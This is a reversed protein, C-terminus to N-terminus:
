RASGAGSTTTATSVPLVSSERASISVARPAPVTTSAPGLVPKPAATARPSALTARGGARRSLQRRRRRHGVRRRARAVHTQSSCSSARVRHWTRELVQQRLDAAVRRDAHGARLNAAPVVAPQQELDADRDGAAAAALRQQFAALLVLALVVAGALDEGDVGGAQQDAAVDPVLEAPEVRRERQQAVVDVEAPPGREGAVPDDADGVRDDVM